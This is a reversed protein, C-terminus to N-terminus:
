DPQYAAAGSLDGARSHRRGPDPPELRRGARFPLAAAECVQLLRTLDAESAPEAYFDASGGVRLTTRSALKEDARLVAGPSIAAKLESM